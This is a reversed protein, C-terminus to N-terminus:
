ETPIVAPHVSWLYNVFWVLVVSTTRSRCACEVPAVSLDAFPLQVCLDRIAKGRPRAQGIIARL